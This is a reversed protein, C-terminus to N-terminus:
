VVGRAVGGKVGERRGHALHPRQQQGRPVGREPARPRSPSLLRGANGGSWAEGGGAVPKRPWPRRRRAARRRTRLAIAAVTVWQMSTKGGPAPPPPRPPRRPPPTASSAPPSPPRGPRKRKTMSERHAPCRRPPPPPRARACRSCRAAGGDCSPAGIGITAAGSVSTSGADGAPQHRRHVQRLNFNAGVEKVVAGWAVGPTESPETEAKAVGLPRM